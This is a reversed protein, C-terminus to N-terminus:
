ERASLALDVLIRHADEPTHLPEDFPIRLTKEDGDVTAVLDLGEADIGTMRAETADTADAYAQALLLVDDAHEENMHGVIRDVDAKSLVQDRQEM